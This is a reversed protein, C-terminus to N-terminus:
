EKREWRDTGRETERKRKIEIWRNAVEEPDFWFVLGHGLSEMKSFYIEDLLLLDLQITVMITIVMMVTVTRAMMMMSVM